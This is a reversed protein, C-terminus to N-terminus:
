YFGSIGNHAAEEMKKATGTEPIRVAQKSKLAELTKTSEKVLESVRSALIEQGNELRAVDTNEMEFKAFDAYTHMIKLPKDIVVEKKRASTRTSVSM